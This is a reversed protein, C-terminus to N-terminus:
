RPILIRCNRKVIKFFVCMHTFDEHNSPCCAIPFDEGYEDIVVVSTLLFDYGPTGHTADICIGNRAFKPAIEKQFTSQLVIM